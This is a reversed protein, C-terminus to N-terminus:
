EKKYHTHAVNISDRDVNFMSDNDPDLLGKYMTVAKFVYALAESVSAEPPLDFSVKFSVRKTKM